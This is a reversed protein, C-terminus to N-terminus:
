SRAPVMGLDPKKMWALIHKRIHDRKMTINASVIIHEVGLSGLMRAENQRALDTVMGWDYTYALPNMGLEKKLFHLGYSSDRGGSFAILCDPEGNKSRYPEVLKELAAVGKYQIPPHEHCIIDCHMGHQLLDIPSTKKESSKSIRQDSICSECAVM